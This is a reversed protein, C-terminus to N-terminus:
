EGKRHLVRHSTQLAAGMSCYRRGGLESTVFVAVVVLQVLPQM